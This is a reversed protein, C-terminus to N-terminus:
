KGDNRKERNFRGRRRRAAQKAADMVKVALGLNVKEDSKIMVVKEPIGIKNLRETLIGELEDVQVNRGETFIENEATIFVTINEDHVTSTEAAPLTVKIGHHKSFTYILSFSIFFFIFLNLIIDTMAVSELGFMYDRRAAIKM